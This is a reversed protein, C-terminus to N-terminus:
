KQASGKTVRVVSGADTFEIILAIDKGIGHGRDNVITVSNLGPGSLTVSSWDAGKFYIWRDIPRQDGGELRETRNPLGLREVVESKTTSGIVIEAADKPHHDHAMSRCAGLLLPLITAGAYAL